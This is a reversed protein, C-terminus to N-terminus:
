EGESLKRMIDDFWWSNQPFRSMTNWWGVNAWEPLNLRARILEVAWDSNEIVDEAEEVDDVIDPAIRTLGPLTNELGTLTDPGIGPLTQVASMCFEGVATVDETVAEPGGAEEVLLAAATAAPVAVQLTPALGAM